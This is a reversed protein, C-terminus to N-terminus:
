RWEPLLVASKEGIKADTGTEAERGFSFVDDGEEIM